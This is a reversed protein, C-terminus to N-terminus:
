PTKWYSQLAAQPGPIHERERRSMGNQLVDPGWLPGSKSRFGLPKQLILGPIADQVVRQPLVNLIVNQAFPFLGKYRQRISAPSCVGALPTHSRCSGPARGPRRAVLSQTTALVTLSCRHVRRLNAIGNAAIGSSNGIDSPLTREMKQSNDTMNMVRKQIPTMGFHGKQGGSGCCAGEAPM